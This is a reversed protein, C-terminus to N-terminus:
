SDVRARADRSTLFPQLADPPIGRRASEPVETLLTLADRPASRSLALWRPAFAGTGVLERVMEVDLARDLATRAGELSAIAREMQHMARELREVRTGGDAGENLEIVVFDGLSDGATHTCADAYSLPDIEADDDLQEEVRIYGRFAIQAVDFDDDDPTIPGQPDAPLQRLSVEGRRLAAEGAARLHPPLVIGSELVLRAWDTLHTAGIALSRVADEPVTWPTSSPAGPQLDRV